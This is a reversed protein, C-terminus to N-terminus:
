RKIMWAASDSEAKIKKLEKDADDKNDFTSYVVLFLGENTTITEPSYGKKKLKKILIDANEQISFCGAVVCYKTNKIQQVETTEKNKPEKHKIITDKKKQIQKEKAVASVIKADNSPAKLVGFQFLLIVIPALVISIVAVYIFIKFTKSKEKKLKIPKTPKEPKTQPKQKEPSKKLEIPNAKIASMGFSDILYNESDIQKFIIINKSNLSIEGIKEILYKKDNILKSKIFDIYKKIKDKAEEQSINDTSVIYKLLLNNQNTIETTFCLKKSPPSIINKKLDIQASIYNKQFTGFDALVVDDHEHLLDYIYKEITLM